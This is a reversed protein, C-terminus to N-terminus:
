PVPLQSVFRQWLYLRFSAPHHVSLGVYEDLHFATIRAWDIGPERVLKQLVAFQSTGTALIIDARGRTKLAQRILKAGADAAREGLQRKTNCIITKMNQEPPLGRTVNLM